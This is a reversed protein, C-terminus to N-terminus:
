ATSAFTRSSPRDGRLRLKRFYAVTRELGEVFDVGPVYGFLREARGIDALSHRVDGVRDPLHTPVIATGLIRNLHAVLDNVTHSGGAGINVVEGRLPEPCLAARINADVVNDIYTFDRSHGGDGFIVPAEGQLMQAIFKPIVAAYLSDVSQRPGFVNFYRLSVTDLSYCTGFAKAYYEQTLKVVAYPSLPDPAITEVRPLIESNGYVSSSSAQVVRQVGARRAADLLTVTGIISAHASPLPDAVSRPVSPISALHIIRDVGKVADAAVWADAVSGEIFRFRGWAAAMNDRNGTSLDDVGTVEYGLTILRDLTHGGIFGACGTVLFHM